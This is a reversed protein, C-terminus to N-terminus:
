DDLDGVERALKEASVAPVSGRPRAVPVDVPSVWKRAVDGTGTVNLKGFLFAFREELEGGIGDLVEPPLTWLDAKYPGFGKKRTKYIFQEETDKEKKEGALEKRIYGYIKERLSAPFAPSDYIINQFGTALHIEATGTEPFAGFAEEPLTSAGHQVAGALGYERRATESIERLTNFDIKVTAISGDPLPVGGHTTGTQISIKSIGKGSDRLSKLERLYGTMFARFEEVTTNRGGVEGIEGGVSVTVGPPELERIFATLDATVRYNAEQQEELTPRDLDVLTSADIDINYFGGELAERILKKVDGEERAPDAAYKKANMQFHDGQLFIPGRYGTRIAAATVAATYEAPRQYTYGIESRAIEFIFPGVDQKLAARFVAQAAQYTIGRLNIAPVTFGTVDKRGMADYLTQISAPLIGLSAGARRIIWRCLAKLDEDPSLAATYILGDIGEKRLKGEDLVRVEEDKVDLIDGVAGLLSERNKHIM